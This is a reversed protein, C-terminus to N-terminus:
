EKWGKAIHIMFDATSLEEADKVLQEFEAQEEHNWVHLVAEVGDLFSGYSNIADYDGRNEAFRLARRKWTVHRALLVRKNV